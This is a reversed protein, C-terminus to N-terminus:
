RRGRSAHPVLLKRLAGAMWRRRQDSLMAGIKVRANSEIIVARDPKNNTTSGADGIKVSRVLDAEFRRKWGLSGVGTFAVGESGRIRVEAKGILGVMAGVFTGLGVLVFPILFICLFLTMGLPMNSGPSGHRSSGSGTALPAPFWAPLPGILRQYLSAAAILVFISVISNWFLSFVLFFFGAGSRCRAGVVVETGSDRLWCGSPLADPMAADTIVEEPGVAEEALEALRWVKDCTRCLGVGERVNIDDEPIISNCQPCTIGSM